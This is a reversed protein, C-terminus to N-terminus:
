LQSNRGWKASVLRGSLDSDQAPSIEQGRRWPKTACLLQPKPVTDGGFSAETLSVLLRTSLETVVSHLPLDSSGTLKVELGLFSLCHGDVGAPQPCWEWCSVAQNLRHLEPYGWQTFNQPPHSLLECCTM